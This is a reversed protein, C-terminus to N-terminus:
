TRQNQMANKYLQTTINLVKVNSVSRTPIQIIDM